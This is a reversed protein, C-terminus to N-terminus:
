FRTSRASANERRRRVRDMSSQLVSERQLNYVSARTLHSDIERRQPEEANTALNRRVWEPVIVARILQQVGVDRKQAETTLIRLTEDGVCMIFKTM